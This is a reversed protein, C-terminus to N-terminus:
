LPTNNNLYLSFAEGYTGALETAKGSSHIM